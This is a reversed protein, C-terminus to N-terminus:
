ELFSCFWVFDNKIPVETINNIKRKTENATASIAYLPSFGVDFTLRKDKIENRIDAAADPKILILLLAGLSNLAGIKEATKNRAINKMTDATEHPLTVNLEKIFM